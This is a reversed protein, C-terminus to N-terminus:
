LFGQNQATESVIWVYCRTYGIHIDENKIIIIVLNIFTVVWFEVKRGLICLTKVCIQINYSYLQVVKVLTTIAM